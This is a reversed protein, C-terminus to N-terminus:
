KVASTFWPQLQTLNQLRLVPDHPLRGAKFYYSDDMYSREEWHGDCLRNGVVCQSLELLLLLVGLVALVRLEKVFICM